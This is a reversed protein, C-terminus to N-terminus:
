PGDANDDEEDPTFDEADIEDALAVIRKDRQEEDPTSAVASGLMSLAVHSGYTDVIDQMAENAANRRRDDDAIEALKPLTNM